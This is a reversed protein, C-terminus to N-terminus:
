PFVLPLTAVAVVLLCSAVAAVVRPRPLAALGWFVAPALLGFRNISHFSGSFTPLVVIAAGAVVWALPAGVRYAVVLLALYLVFFAVDRVIWHSNEYAKSINEIARVIGLPTFRRGWAREAHTWALPDDLTRWLYLAFSGLAAFPAAVAGWAVGRGARRALPVLPIAVFMTEPRALTGAALLAAATLWRDHRAALVGGAILALVLSEPYALSFAVGAPFVALLMVARRAFADDFLERTLQAFLVLAALFAANALLIGGAVWSLGAAHALRLLLPFLPFFAPDSQRGPELLYGHEAVTRYWRGDWSGLLGLVHRQEDTGTYGRPGVADVVAATVAVVLRGFAWWGLVWTLGGIRTRLAPGRLALESM